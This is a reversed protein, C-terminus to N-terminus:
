CGRAKGTKRQPAGLGLGLGVGGPRERRVNLRLLKILPLWVTDIRWWTEPRDVAYMLIIVDPREQRKQMLLRGERSALLQEENAAEAGGDVAKGDALLGDLSGSHAAAGSAGGGGGAMTGDDRDGNGGHGGGSDRGAMSRSSTRTPKVDQDLNTDIITMSVNEHTAEAPIVVTNSKPPV